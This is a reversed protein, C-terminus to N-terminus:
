KSDQEFIEIYAEDRLQRKAEVILPEFDIEGPLIRSMRLATALNDVDSDISRAVGPYQIKLALERGDSSVGTHVQGVSAAAIPEFDFHRFRREWRDGWQEILVRRLQAAPMADGADRLTALACAAEPPLMDDAELSLLQGLKMAAGRMNSLSDALRLANAGNLLVHGSSQSTSGIRRVSETAAGLAMRGALWGIKALREARGSPIRSHQLSTDRM